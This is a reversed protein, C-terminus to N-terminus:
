SLSIIHAFLQRSQEDADRHHSKGTDNLCLTTQLASRDTCHGSMDGTMMGDGASGDATDDAMVMRFDFLTFGPFLSGRPV